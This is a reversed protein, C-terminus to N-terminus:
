QVLYEAMYRLVSSRWEGVGGSVCSGAGCGIYGPGADGMLTLLAASVDGYWVMRACCCCCCYM